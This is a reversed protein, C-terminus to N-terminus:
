KPLKANIVKALEEATRAGTLKEGNIIFTPTSQIGDKGADRQFQEVMHVQLDRDSLCQDIREDSLGGARGIGRLADIVAQGEARAWREQQRMLLDVFGHYKTETGGCRAIVAAWLGLQDFYVERFELRLKGTEIFEKKIQPLAGIHVSACHPCTLSAYEIMVVPATASGMAVHGLVYGKDSLASPNVAPPPASTTATSASTQSATGMGVPATQDRMNLAMALGAIGLLAAGVLMLNRNM